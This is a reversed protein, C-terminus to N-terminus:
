KLNYRGPEIQSPFIFTATEDKESFSIKPLLSKKGHILECDLIAIEASHLTIKNTSKKIELTIEEKGEFIFEDLDPTLHIKYHIPIIRDTLRVGSIKKKAM